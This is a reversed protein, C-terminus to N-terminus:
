KGSLFPALVAALATVDLVNAVARQKGIEDEQPVDIWPVVFEHTGLPQVNERYVVFFPVAADIPIEFKRSGRVCIVCPIHEYELGEAVIDKLSVYHMEDRIAQAGETNMTLTPFHKKLAMKIVDKGVVGDDSRLIIAYM